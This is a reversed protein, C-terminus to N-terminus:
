RISKMVPTKSAAQYNRVIQLFGPAAGASEDFDYTYHLHRGEVKQTGSKVTFEFADFPTEVVSDKTTLLYHPMRTFLAPDKTGQCDKTQAAAVFTLILLFAGTVRRNVGSGRLEPRYASRGPRRRAPGSLGL